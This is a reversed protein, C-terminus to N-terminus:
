ASFDPPLDVSAMHGNCLAKIAEELRHLRADQKADTTAREEDTPIVVSNYADVAQAVGDDLRVNPDPVPPVPEPQEAPDPTNGEALWADFEARDRNAPDNPIHANDARRLVTESISSALPDWIEAYDAM